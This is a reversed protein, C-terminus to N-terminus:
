TAGPGESAGSCPSVRGQRGRTVKKAGLDALRAERRGVEDYLERLRNVAATIKLTGTVARGIVARAADVPVTTALRGPIAGFVLAGTVLVGPGWPEPGRTLDVSVPWRGRPCPAAAGWPRDDKAHGSVTNDASM